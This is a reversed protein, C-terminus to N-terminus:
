KQQSVYTGLGICHVTYLQVDCWPVLSGEQIREHYHSCQWRSTAAPQQEQSKTQGYAVFLPFLSLIVTTHAGCCHCLNTPSISLAEAVCHNQLDDMVNHTHM